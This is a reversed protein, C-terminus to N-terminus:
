FSSLWLLHILVLWTGKLELRKTDSVNVTELNRLFQIEIKQRGKVQISNQFLDRPKSSFANMDERGGLGQFSQCAM